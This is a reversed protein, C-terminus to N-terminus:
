KTEQIGIMFKTGDISEILLAREKVDLVKWKNDWRITDAVARVVDVVQATNEKM